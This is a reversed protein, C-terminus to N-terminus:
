SPRWAFGVCSHELLVWRIRRLAMAVEEMACLGLGLVVYECVM